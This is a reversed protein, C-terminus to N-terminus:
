EYNLLLLEGMNSLIKNVYIESSKTGLETGVYKSLALRIDGNSKKLYSMFIYKGSDICPGIDWLDRYETIIKNRKLEPEWVSYRVQMLCVAGMNSKAKLNFNSEVEIM